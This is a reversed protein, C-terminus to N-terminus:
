LFKLDHKKDHVLEYLTKNHRNHILSRNQTYCATAVAVAWLFMLAKSFILMTRAAEVLTRNRREVVSNQQPTRQVSKQHFIGVDEYYEIMVQNVLKTGNDTRTYRVTKNLGVQIQNLFKIIFEPTEDKSRLFLDKRALDNITDFNLHNLRRHWLWSKNKSAKSLLCIPSSKMMDEVSINYLNSGRSGKLLEVGDVDRIYCSHKRFAVELDSDCFQWVSFLNHGLGEMYYVRSIVSDGIMYYGYGMIAGFHDNGFRITGIFKKRFEQATLLEGDYTKLLKNKKTNSRPKSGSAKTSSNVGISPIVHVNTQQVKPYEVHAQTNKHSTDCTEKLILQKKRTLPTTVIKKDRKNFDKLCTGIVYELLEYSRKTYLCASELSSDLPKEVRAEEIIECLTEVSEKLHKLYDLYVERSNRNGPSIPEVNIAYMGPALVKPKVSDITVCKMKKIIQAKLNENEVLLATTKEVTKARTIKETLETIQFDLARFDLTRNAENHTEKLQSIQVKLKRITNDKGQLFAKMKNIEFVSDFEPADQTPRSKNNGFSEKLHQYVHKYADHMESFRSVILVYNTATYFVEKSLCDAILNENEILLNKREIKASKKDMANQDVEAEMQEFIETM